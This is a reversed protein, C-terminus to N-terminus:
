RQVSPKSNFVSLLEDLNRFRFHRERISPKRVASLEVQGGVSLSDLNRGSFLFLFEQELVFGRSREDENDAHARILADISAAQKRETEKNVIGLFM